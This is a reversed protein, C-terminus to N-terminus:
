ARRPAKPMACARMPQGFFPSIPCIGLVATGILMVALVGLAVGLGGGVLIAIALVTGGAVARIARGPRSNMFRLFAM